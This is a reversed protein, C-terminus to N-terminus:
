NWRRVVVAGCQGTLDFSVKLVCPKKLERPSKLVPVPCDPDPHDHNLTGPVMGTQFAELSATLEVLGGAAGLNGIFSKIAIVDPTKPFAKYIGQAEARDAVKCGAGHANIHDIDSADIGAENMAAQIARYIGSGDKKQDFAAGFGLVEAYIKANRKKAHELEEVVFVGTGEGLVMGGSNLDFPRSAKQHNDNDHSLDEFLSHRSMSLINIKSEAGGSLFFDGRDRCLLRFTEGLALISAVDSQTISNNPGQADHLISVQCALMNPLYKLMWLPQVAELGKEGWLELDVQGPTGDCAIVAADALEPLDTAILGAGYIVGFRTHDLKNKDVKSDNLACQAGSVALQITRAMVRLAKRDKKDVYNKADFDPICGAFRIPLSSADFLTIPKIGSKGEILAKHFSPGDNGLSNLSGIGTIVARRLSVVM